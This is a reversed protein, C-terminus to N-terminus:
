NYRNAESQNNSTLCLSERTSQHSSSEVFFVCHSAPCCQRRQLSEFVRDAAGVAAADKTPWEVDVAPGRRRREVELLSNLILEIRRHEIATRTNIKKRSRGLTDDTIQCHFPQPPPLTERWLISFLTLRCDPGSLSLVVVLPM